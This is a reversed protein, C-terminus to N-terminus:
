SDKLIIEKQGIHLSVLQCDASEHGRQNYSCVEVMAAWWLLNLNTVKTKLTRSLKKMEKGIKLKYKLGNHVGQQKQFFAKQVCFTKICSYIDKYCM